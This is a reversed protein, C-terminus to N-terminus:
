TLLHLPMIIISQMEGTMWVVMWAPVMMTAGKLIWILFPMTIIRITHHIRSDDLNTLPQEVVLPKPVPITTTMLRPRLRRLLLHRSLITPIMLFGTPLTAVVVAVVVVEITMAVAVVVVVPAIIADTRTANGSPRLGMRIISVSGVRLQVLHADVKVIHM